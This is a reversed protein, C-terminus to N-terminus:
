WPLGTVPLVLDYFADYSGGQVLDSVRPSPLHGPTSVSLYGKTGVALLLERAVHTFWKLLSDELGLLAEPSQPGPWGGALGQALAVM